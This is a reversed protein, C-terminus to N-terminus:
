TPTWQTIWRVLQMANAEGSAWGSAAELEARRRAQAEGPNRSRRGDRLLQDCCVNTGRARGPERRPPRARDGAGRRGGAGRRRATGVPGSTARARRWRRTCSPPARCSSSRRTRWRTWSSRPMSGTLWWSPSTSRGGCSTRRAHISRSGTCASPGDVARESRRRRRAPGRDDVVADKFWGHDIGLTGAATQIYQERVLENPHERLVPVLAEAARARGEPSTLDAGALVRDMKFQM